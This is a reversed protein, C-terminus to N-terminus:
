GFSTSSKVLVDGTGRVIHDLRDVVGVLVSASTLVVSHCVPPVTADILRSGKKKDFAYDTNDPITKREQTLAGEVISQRVLM